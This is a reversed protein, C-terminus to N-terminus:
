EITQKKVGDVFQGNIFLGTSYSTRGKYVPTDWNYSFTPPMNFNHKDDSRSAILVRKLIWHTSTRFLVNPHRM